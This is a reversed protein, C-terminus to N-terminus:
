AVSEDIGVVEELVTEWRRHDGQDNYHRDAIGDHASKPSNCAVSM